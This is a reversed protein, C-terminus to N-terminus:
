IIKKCWICNGSRNMGTLVFTGDGELFYFEEKTGLYSVTIINNGGGSFAFSWKGHADGIKATGDPLLEMDSPREFLNRADQVFDIRLYKGAAEAPSKRAIREGAYIAPSVVPWGSETFLMRRVNLCHRRIDRNLQESYETREFRAHCVLFWEDDNDSNNDNNNDNGRNLVSNHGLAIFGSGPEFSYGTTIKLGVHNEPSVDDTMERGNFDLYPGTITRSRGVRVNYFDALSGYSVFLYYFGTKRNYRIYAGEVAGMAAPSRKAISLGYGDDPSEPLGTERDLKLLRIGGWFSGYILYHEGTEEEVAINADIANVPSEPTTKVAIGKHRFPGEPSDSEALGIISNQSGFTSASYYLRYKQKYLVIDPAWIGRASTHEKVEGPIESLATGIYEFNVLDRSRRIQGGTEERSIPGSDTSYIYYNGSSGDYFVAPDHVFLIDNEKTM